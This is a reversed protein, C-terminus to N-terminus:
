DDDEAYPSIWRSLRYRLNFIGLTIRSRLTPKKFRTVILEDYDSTTLYTAIALERHMDRMARDAGDQMSKLIGPEEM